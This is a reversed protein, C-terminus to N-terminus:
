KKIHEFIQNHTDRKKLARLKEDILNLKARFKDCEQRNRESHSLIMEYENQSDSTNSRLVFNIFEGYVLLFDAFLRSIDRLLKVIIESSM